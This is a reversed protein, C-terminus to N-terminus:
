SSRAFQGHEAELARAYAASAEAKSDFNGLFKRGIRARWKKDGAHWSVGKLGSANRTQAGQNAVNQARTAERLNAIRNDDRTGNAHDIEDSPEREHVYLWALRSAQYLVGDIRIVRYGYANLCGAERGALTKAKKGEPNRWRFFGTDQDYSLLHRLRELSPLANKKPPPFPLLVAFSTM